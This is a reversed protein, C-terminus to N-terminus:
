LGFYPPPPPSSCNVSVFVWRTKGPELPLLVTAEEALLLVPFDSGLFSLFGGGRELVGLEDTLLGANVFPLM